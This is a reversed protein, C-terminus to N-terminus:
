HVKTLTAFVGLMPHDLYHVEYRKMLSTKKMRYSHGHEQLLLDVELIALTKRGLSLTGSLRPGDRPAGDEPYEIRFPMGISPDPLAQRWALHLLPRYIGSSSLRQWTENLRHKEAPTVGERFLPGANRLDPVSPLTRVKDGENEPYAFIVVEIDYIPQPEEALASASILFLLLMPKLWAIRALRLRIL